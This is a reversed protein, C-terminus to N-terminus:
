RLTAALLREVARADVAYATDAADRSRAFVVGALEGARTVVPAGSDGARVRADLELAPRRLPRSANPASVHADVARRVIAGVTAVGGGRLLWLRVSDGGKAAATRLAAGGLRPVALLALDTRSDRVLLRATRVGGRRIRVRVSAGRAVAHAVTVVRGPAVAFGTARESGTALVAVVPPAAPEPAAVEPAASDACGPGFAAALLAALLAAARPGPAVRRARSAGRRARGRV